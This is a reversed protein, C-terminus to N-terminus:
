FEHYFVLDIVIYRHGTLRNIMSMAYRGGAGRSTVLDRLRNFKEGSIVNKIGHKYYTLETKDANISINNLIRLCNTTSAIERYISTKM